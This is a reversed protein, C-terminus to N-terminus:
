LIHENYKNVINAQFQNKSDYLLINKFNNKVCNLQLFGLLYIKFINKM